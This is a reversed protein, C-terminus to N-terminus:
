FPYEMMEDATQEIAYNDQVEAEIEARTYDAIKDTVDSGECYIRLNEIKGMKGSRLPYDPSDYNGIVKVKVTPELRCTVEFWQNNVEVSCEYDIL